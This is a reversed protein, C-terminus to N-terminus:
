RPRPGRPATSMAACGCYTVSVASAGTTPTWIPTPWSAPRARRPRHGGHGRRSARRHGGRDVGTPPPSGGNSRACTSPTWSGNSRSMPQSAKQPLCEVLSSRSLDTTPRKRPDGDWVPVARYRGARSCDRSAWTTERWLRRLPPVRQLRHQEEGWKTPVTPLQRRGGARDRRSTRAWLCARARALGELLARQSLHLLLGAQGTGSPGNRRTCRTGPGGPGVSTPPRSASSGRALALEGRVVLDVLNPPQLETDGLPRKAVLTVPGARMARCTWRPGSPSFPSMHAPFM